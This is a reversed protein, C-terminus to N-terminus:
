DRFNSKWQDRRTSIFRLFDYDVTWNVFNAVSLILFAISSVVCLALAVMGVIIGFLMLLPPITTPAYPTLWSKLIAYKVCRFWNLDNGWKHILYFYEDNIAYFLLPDKPREQLNFSEKPAMIYTRGAKFEGSVGNIKNLWETHPDLDYDNCRLQYAAEFNTVKTPLDKDITGKYHDSTLFRLHYKNCIAEIQSVHFIREQKFRHTQSLKINAQEKIQKGEQLVKNMGLRELADNKTLGENTEFERILLLERATVVKRNQKLLEIELNM